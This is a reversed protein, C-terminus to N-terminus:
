NETMEDKAPLIDETNYDIGEDDFYNIKHATVLFDKKEERILQLCDIFYQENAKPHIAKILQKGSETFVFVSINLRQKKGKEKGRIIGIYSNTIIYDPKEKSVELNLSLSQVSLLGCEELKLLEKFYVNHKNLTSNDNLIFYIDASKMSLGSVKQFLEAEKSTMNRLKEITRYSYTNPTKIEGALIHAWIKQMKEDSIDEASNFFRTMWDQSVPESNVDNAAELEEYAKDAISEINQQKTIEQFALRCSARKAIEEYNSTDITVGTPDYVIPVDSNNRVTDTILKLEYAKAEAMKRVHRPEYAKGIAGSVAEILKVTPSVLAQVIETTGM